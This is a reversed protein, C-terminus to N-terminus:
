SQDHRSRRTLETTLIKIWEERSFPRIVPAHYNRLGKLYNGIDRNTWSNMEHDEPCHPCKYNILM